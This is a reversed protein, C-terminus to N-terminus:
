LDLLSDAQLKLAFKESSVNEDKDNDQVSGGRTSSSHQSNLVMARAESTVAAHGVQVYHEHKRSEHTTESDGETAQNQEQGLLANIQFSTQPEDPVRRVFSSGDPKQMAEQVSDSSLLDVIESFAPRKTPDFSCCRAALDCIFSPAIGELCAGNDNSIPHWTGQIMANLVRNIRVKRGKEINWRSVLFKDLGGADVAVDVLLM